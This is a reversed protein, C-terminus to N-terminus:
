VGTLTLRRFLSRLTGSDNRPLNTQLFSACRDMAKRLQLNTRELEGITQHPPSSMLVFRLQLTFTSAEKHLRECRRLQKELRRMRSAASGLGPVPALAELQETLAATSKLMRELLEEALKGIAEEEAPTTVFNDGSSGDVVLIAASVAAAGRASIRMGSLRRGAAIRLSLAMHQKSPVLEKLERRTRCLKNELTCAEEKLKILRGLLRRQDQSGKKSTKLRGQVLDQKAANEQLSRLLQSRDKLLTKLYRKASRLLELEQETLELSADGHVSLLDVQRQHEAQDLPYDLLVTAASDLTSSSKYAEAQVEDASYVGRRDSEAPGESDDTPRSSSKKKFIGLSGFLKLLSVEASGHFLARATRGSSSALNEPDHLATVAAHHSGKAAGSSTGGSSGDSARNSPGASSATLSSGPARRSVEPAGGAAGREGGVGSEVCRRFSGTEAVSLLRANTGGALTAHSDGLRLCQHGRLLLFVTAAFCIISVMYWARHGEKRRFPLEVYAPSYHSFNDTSTPQEDLVPRGHRSVETVSLVGAM